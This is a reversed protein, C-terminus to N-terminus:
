CHIKDQLSRSTSLLYVSCVPIHLRIETSEDQGDLEHGAPESESEITQRLQAEFEATCVVFAAAKLDGGAASDSVKHLTRSQFM